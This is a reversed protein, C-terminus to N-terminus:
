DQRVCRQRKWQLLNHSTNRATRTMESKLEPTGISVVRRRHISGAVCHTDKCTM